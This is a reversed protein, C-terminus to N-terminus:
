EFGYSFPIRFLRLFYQASVPHIDLGRKTGFTMRKLGSAFCFLDGEFLELNESKVHNERHRNSLM